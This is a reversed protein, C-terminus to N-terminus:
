GGGVRHSRRCWCTFGRCKPPLRLSRDDRRSRPPRAVTGVANSWVINDPTFRLIEKAQPSEETGSRAAVGSHLRFQRRRMRRGCRWACRSQKATRGGSVITRRGPRRECHGPQGTTRVEIVARLTYESDAQPDLTPAVRLQYLGAFDVPVDLQEGSRKLERWDSGGLARHGSRAMTGGFQQVPSQLSGAPRGDVSPGSGGGGRARSGLSRHAETPRHRPRPSSVVRHSRASSLSSM